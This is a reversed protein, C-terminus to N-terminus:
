GRARAVREAFSGVAIGLVAALMLGLQHPLGHAAVATIGAVAACLLMPRGKILPVVIGIFTAVMAFDLGWEAAHGIQRGAVIGIATCLQWNGYMFLASGCFYWHRYVDDSSQQFRRITVAYTEDTLWFAIPILWRHPLYRLYPGLSAAYLMHRLNVVLTTFVILGPAVHQAILGIGIFQASGAFVLLSMALTAWAPFGSTTALAGFVVGFPIAGVILPFTDRAGAAFASRPGSYVTSSPVPVKPPLIKRDAM